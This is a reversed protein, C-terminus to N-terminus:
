DEGDLLPDLTRVPRAATRAFALEALLLSVLAAGVLALTTSLSLM